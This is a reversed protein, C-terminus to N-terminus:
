PNARILRPRYQSANLVQYMPLARYINDKVVIPVFYIDTQKSGGM